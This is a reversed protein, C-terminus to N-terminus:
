LFGLAGFLDEFVAEIAFQEGKDYYMRYSTVLGSTEKYFFEVNDEVMSKTSSKGIYMGIFVVREIYMVVYMENYTEGSFIASPSTLVGPSHIEIIFRYYSEDDSIYDRVKSLCDATSDENLPASFARVCAFFSLFFVLFTRWLTGKM